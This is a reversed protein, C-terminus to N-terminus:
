TASQEIRKLISDASKLVREATSQVKKVDGKAWGDIYAFASDGPNLGYHRGIVYAVSEAEVEMTPRQGDPGSHYDHIQDMHGLEIHALEHALISAGHAKSYRTTVVVQKNTHDTWGEPGGEPLDRYEVAYGHGAIQAELQPVMEPPADGEERTYSIQPPEPPKPGDTQKIDYVPVALFGVVVQKGKEPKGDSGTKGDEPKLRVMKPARIWIAKSGKLLSHDMQKWRKFGAVRTADPRQMKILLQNQLSYSHFQSTFSLFGQWADATGLDAIATDIEQRIDEIRSTKDEFTTTAAAFGGGGAFTVGELTSALASEAKELVAVSQASAEYNSRTDGSCRRPGGQETTSRCM